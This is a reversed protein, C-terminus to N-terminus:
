SASAPGMRVLVMANLAHEKSDWPYVAERAVVNAGPGLSQIDRVRTVLWRPPAEGALAARRPNYYPVTYPLDLYFAPGGTNYFELSREQGKILARVQHAFEKEGRWADGAPLAFVFLYIMFLWATAASTLFMRQPDLRRFAYGLAIASGIWYIALIARDPASPLLSWPPPAFFRPPVFALISVAVSAVLVVFGTKLLVRTLRNLRASPEALMRALLIAAAPLTPLLYYSRRSGSLTFFLFTAWFFTLVFRDGLRDHRDPESETLTHELPATTHAHILAAPLFVSWPALLIFIVYVYLYIPGVHDFPAFYREVNERYVMYLGRSSGRQMHSIAFPWYYIAAALGIALPTYWNFFWRNREILIKLREASHGHRVDEVFDRFFARFGDVASGDTISSYVGIILIPLVFGLLGKTLSTLAILAWLGVVWWGPESQRNRWFLLLAALEGAITMVDADATRSYFVFAYSTGLVSAAMVAIRLDYLRRALFLLLM